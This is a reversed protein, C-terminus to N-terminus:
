FLGTPKNWSAKILFKHHRLRTMTQTTTVRSIQFSKKLYRLTLTSSRQRGRPYCPICSPRKMMETVSVGQSVFFEKLAVESACKAAEALVAPDPKELFGRLTM